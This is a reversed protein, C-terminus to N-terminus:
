LKVLNLVLRGDNTPIPRIRITRGDKTAIIVKTIPNYQHAVALARLRTYITQAEKENTTPSIMVNDYLELQKGISLEDVTKDISIVAVHEVYGIVRNFNTEKIIDEFSENVSGDPEMFDIHHLMQIIKSNLTRTYDMTWQAGNKDALWKLLKEWHEPFKMKLVTNGYEHTTIDLIYDSIKNCLKTLPALPIREPNEKLSEALGTITPKITLRKVFDAQEVTVFEIPDRIVFSKCAICNNPEIMSRTELIAMDLSDCVVPDALQTLEDPDLGKMVSSLTVEEPKPDTSFSDDPELTDSMPKKKLPFRNRYYGEEAVAPDDYLCQNLYRNENTLPRIEQSVDGYQDKVKYLVETHINILQELTHIGRFTLKWKSTYAVQYHKGNEWFDGYPDEKTHDPGEFGTPNTYIISKPVDDGTAWLPVSPEVPPSSATQTFSSRHLVPDDEHIRSQTRQRTPQVPEPQVSERQGRMVVYGDDDSVERRPDVQSARGSYAGRAQSYTRGGDSYRDRPDEDQYRGGSTDYRGGGTDYRGRSYRDDRGRGRIPRRGATQIFEGIPSEIVDMCWNYEKDSLADFMKNEKALLALYGEYVKFMEDDITRDVRQGRMVLDEYEEINDVFTDVLTNFEKDNFRNKALIKCVHIEFEGLATRDDHKDLVSMVIDALADAAADYLKDSM